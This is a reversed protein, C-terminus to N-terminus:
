IHILSLDMGGAPTFTLEGFVIENNVFYFDVRVFPFRKALIEANNIALDLKKPKSPVLNSYLESEWTYPLVNWNRDMLFYLAHGDANRNVCLLIAKCEGNMCYFKYDQPRNGDIDGLYKEVLIRPKVDKYQMESHELYFKKRMWKRLISKTADINLNKKDNVIINCGCGVNLKLAFSSPLDNWQIEDVDEYDAILPNLLNAMGQQTIYDRVRYKDACQKILPDNWYNNLKLLLIKENLTKPNSLDLKRHFKVYYTVKTNLKPSVLTLGSRFIKAAKEKIIM